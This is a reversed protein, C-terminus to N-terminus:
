ELLERNMRLFSSAMRGHHETTPCYPCAISRFIRQMEEDEETETWIDDLKMNMERTAALIEKRSNSVPTIDAEEYISTHGWTHAGMEYIERFSLYRSERNSYLKKPVFVDTSILTPGNLPVHNLQLFPTGFCQPISYIGANDGIFFKCHSLLYVDYFDSRHRWAYDVVMPNDSQYESEVVAGVRLSWIGCESLYNLASDYDKIDSDRYSHYTHEIEPVEAMLYSPDRAFFCVYTSDSVGLEKEFARGELIEDASLSLQPGINNWIIGDAFPPVQRQFWFPRDPYKQYVFRFMRALTDNQVVFMVRRMMKLVQDNCPTTCFFLFWKRKREGTGSRFAKERLFFEVSPLWVGIRRGGMDGIRLTAIPSVMKEALGLVSNLFAAVLSKLYTAVISM